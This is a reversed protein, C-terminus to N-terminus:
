LPPCKANEEQAMLSLEEFIGEKERGKPRLRQYTDFRGQYPKFPDTSADDNSHDNM